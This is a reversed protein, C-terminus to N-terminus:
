NCNIINILTNIFYQYLEIWHFKTIIVGWYLIMAAFLLRIRWSVITIVVISSISALVLLVSWRHQELIKVYVICKISVIDESNFLTLIVIKM